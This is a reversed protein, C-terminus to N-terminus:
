ALDAWYWGNIETNGFFFGSQPPLLSADKNAIATECLKVLEELQERSVYSTECEDEGGQVTDVFWKHIQNSKRWYAVCLDVTLHPSGECRFRSLGAAEVITKYTAREEAKNHDWDGIYRSAMLYMDLGMIIKGKRSTQFPVPSTPGSILEPNM